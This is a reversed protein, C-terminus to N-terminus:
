TILLEPLLASSATLVSANLCHRARGPFAPRKKSIGTLKLRPPEEVDDWDPSPSPMVFFLSAPLLADPWRYRLQFTELSRKPSDGFGARSDRASGLDM